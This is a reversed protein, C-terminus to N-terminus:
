EPFTRMSTQGTIIDVTKKLRFFVNHQIYPVGHKACIEKVRPMAKRYSLMSLDPFMHHEIQYNLWGHVFDILDNGATYNASSIVARMYFMGSNPLCTSSFKYLDDGTHNTVIIIFSHLNALVDALICNCVATKYLFFPNSPNTFYGVVLWPAPFLVFRYLIYPGIARLLFDWGSLWEPLQNRYTIFNVTLFEDKLDIVEGRKSAAITKAFREPDKKKVEHARYEKYLNSAYYLWKWTIMAVGVALYKLILPIPAQRIKLTNREVLDPDADEGLRYHHLHNHEVNWAEPLLWDFWDIARRWIGLGFKFRNFRGSKDCKQYGGHCVHHAVMTWRSTIAVSLLVASVLTYCPLIGATALGAVACANSWFIIKHLHTVDEEGQGAKLEKGLAQIDEKFATLDVSAIWADKDKSTNEASVVEPPIVM